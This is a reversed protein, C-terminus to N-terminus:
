VVLSDVLVVLDDWMDFNLFNMIDVVIKGKLQIVYQKVLVVLVFYFVVMIVIEGFM